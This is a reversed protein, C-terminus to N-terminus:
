FLRFRLTSYQLAFHVLLVLFTVSVGRALWMRRGAAADITLAVLAAWAGGRLSGGSPDLAVLAYAQGALLAGLSLAGLVLIWGIPNRPRRTAVLAGVLAPAAIAAVLFPYVWVSGAGDVHRGAAIRDLVVGGAILVLAGLALGCAALRLAIRVLQNDRVGAAGAM